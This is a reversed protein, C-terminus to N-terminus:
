IICASCVMDGADWVRPKEMFLRFNSKFGRMEMFENTELMNEERPRNMIFRMHEVHGGTM